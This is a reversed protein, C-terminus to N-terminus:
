HKKKAKVKKALKKKPEVPAPTEPPPEAAAPEPTAAGPETPAAAAPAAEIAGKPEPLNPERLAALEGECTHMCEAFRKQCHELCAAESGGVCEGRCGDFQEQARGQCREISDEIPARRCDVFAQGPVPSPPKPKLAWVRVYGARGLQDRGLAFEGLVDYVEVRQGQDLGELQAYAEGALPGVWLPQREAL